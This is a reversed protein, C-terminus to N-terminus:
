LRKGCYSCFKVNDGVIREGCFPCFRFAGRPFSYHDEYETEYDDNEETDSYEYSTSSRNAIESCINKAVHDPITSDDNDSSLWYTGNIHGYDNFDIKFNWESIGSQSRVTGYIVPGNTYLNSLRKIDKSARKVITKFEEESFGDNFYCPKNKRRQEEALAEKEKRNAKKLLGAVVGAGIIWGLAGM